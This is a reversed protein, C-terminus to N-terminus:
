SKLRRMLTRATPGHERAQTLLERIVEAKSLSRDGLEQRLTLLWIEVEDAEAADLRVTLPVADEVAPSRRRGRPPTRRVKRTEPEGSGEGPGTEPTETTPQEGGYEQHERLHQYRDWDGTLGSMDPGGTTSTM